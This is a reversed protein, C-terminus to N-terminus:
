AKLAFDAWEIGRLGQFFLRMYFAQGITGLEQMLAHNLCTFHGDQLSEVIPRALTV